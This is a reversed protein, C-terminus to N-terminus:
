RFFLKSFFSQKEKRFTFKLYYFCWRPTNAPHQGHVVDYGLYRFKMTIFQRLPISKFDDDYLYFYNDRAHYSKEIAKGYFDKHNQWFNEYESEPNSNILEYYSKLM